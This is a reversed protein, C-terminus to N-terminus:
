HHHEPHRRLLVNCDSVRSMDGTARAKGREAVLAACAACGPVPSPPDLSLRFVPPLNTTAKSAVM